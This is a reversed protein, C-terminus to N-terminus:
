EVATEPSMLGFVVLHAVHLPAAIASGTHLRRLTVTRLERVTTPDATLDARAAAWWRPVSGRGTEDM